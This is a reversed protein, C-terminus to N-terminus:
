SKIKEIQVEGVNHFGAWVFWKNKRKTTALGTDDSVLYKRCENHAITLAEELSHCNVRLTQAKKMRGVRILKIKYKSM